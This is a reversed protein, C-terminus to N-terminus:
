FWGGGFYRISDAAKQVIQSAGTGIPNTRMNVDAPKPPADKKGEVVDTLYNATDVITNGVTNIATGVGPILGIPALGAKVGAVVKDRDTANPDDFKSLNKFVDYGATIGPIIRKGAEVIPSETIYSLAKGFNKM